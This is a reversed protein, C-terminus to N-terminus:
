AAKKALANFLSVYTGKEAKKASTITEQEKPMETSVFIDPKAETEQPKHLTEPIDMEPDPKPAREDKPSIEPAENSEEKPAPEIKEEIEQNSEPSAITEPISFEADPNTDKPALTDTDIPKINDMDDDPTNKLIEKEKQRLDTNDSPTNAATEGEKAFSAAKARMATDKVDQEDQEKKATDDMDKQHSSLLGPRVRKIVDKAYLIQSLDPGFKDIVKGVYDFELMGADVSKEVLEIITAKLLVRREDAREELEARYKRDTTGNNDFEILEDGFIYKAVLPWKDRFKNRGSANNKIYILNLADELEKIDKGFAAMSNNQPKKEDKNQVTEDSM